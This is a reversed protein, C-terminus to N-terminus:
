LPNSPSDMQSADCYEDIEREVGYVTDLIRRTFTLTGKARRLDPPVIGHAAKNGNERISDAM